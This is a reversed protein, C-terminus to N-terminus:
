SFAKWSENGVDWTDSNQFVAGLTSQLVMQPKGECLHAASDKGDPFLLICNCVCVSNM